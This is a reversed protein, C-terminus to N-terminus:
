VAFYQRKAMSFIHLSIYDSGIRRDMMLLFTVNNFNGEKTENKKNNTSDNLIESASKLFTKTSRVDTRKGEAVDKIKEGRDRM